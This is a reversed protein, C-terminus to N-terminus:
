NLKDLDINLQLINVTTTGFLSLLPKETHMEVLAKVRDETLNRSKAIRPIQVYVGQPSLDPDLGSGSATILESPIDSKKITPNHILFTDIRSQIDNLYDPNTTSKNSAGSGAANYNVASPRSSFYKDNSFNQGELAYGVVKGNVTITEGNGKNPALQAIGLILLTYIGCFFILCILTLKIAPLIHQKM